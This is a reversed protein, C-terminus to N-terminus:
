AQPKDEKKKPQAAPSEAPPVEDLKNGHWPCFKWSAQVREKGVPCFRPPSLSILPLRWSFESEKQATLNSLIVSFSSAQTPDAIPKGSTTKAPFFLIQLNQGMSGLINTLVPRVISAIGQADGSIVKLPQYAHGEADRLSIGSRIEDESRWNINGLGVRGVAIIVMTYDRLAAFTAHAQEPTSGEEIASQEWFETPLWWVFGTTDKGGITLQAEKIIEDLKTEGAGPASPQQALLLQPKMLFFLLFLTLRSVPSQKIM